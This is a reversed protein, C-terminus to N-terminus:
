QKDTRAITHGPQVRVVRREVHAVPPPEHHGRGRVVLLVAVLALPVPFLADPGLRVDMECVCAFVWFNGGAGFGRPGWSFHVRAVITNITDSRTATRTDRRRLTDM